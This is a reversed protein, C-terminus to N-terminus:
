DSAPVLICPRYRGSQRDVCDNQKNQEDLQGDLRGCQPVYIPSPQEQYISGIAFDHLKSAFNMIGPIISIPTGIVELANRLDFGWVFQHAFLNIHSRNSSHRDDCRDSLDGFCHGRDGFGVVCNGWVDSNFATTIGSLSSM